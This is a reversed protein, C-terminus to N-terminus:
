RARFSQNMGSLSKNMTKLEARIGLLCVEIALGVLLIAGLILWDVM